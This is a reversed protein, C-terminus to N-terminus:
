KFDHLFERSQGGSLRLLEFCSLIRHDMSGKSVTAADRVIDKNFFKFRNLYESQLACVTFASILVSEVHVVSFSAVLPSPSARALLHCHCQPVYRAVTRTTGTGIRFPRWRSASQRCRRRSSSGHPLELRSM